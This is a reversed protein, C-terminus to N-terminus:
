MEYPVEEENGLEEYEDDYEDDYYEDDSHIM